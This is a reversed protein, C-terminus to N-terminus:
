PSKAGRKAMKAFVVFRAAPDGALARKLLSKREKQPMRLAAVTERIQEDTMRM